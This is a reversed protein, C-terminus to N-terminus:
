AVEPCSPTSAQIIMKRMAIRDVLSMRGSCDYAYVLYYCLWMQNFNLMRLRVKLAIPKPVILVLRAKNAMIKFYESFRSPVLISEETEVFEKSIIFSDMSATIVGRGESDICSEVRAQPYFERVEAKVQLAREGVVMEVLAHRPM